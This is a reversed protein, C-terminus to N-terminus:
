LIEKLLTLLREERQIYTFGSLVRQRADAGTELTLAKRVAQEVEEVNRHMVIVGTHGIADPIGNVNSGVPICECLMAESLTNPMGETISAQVFVKAKNYNLFLLDDPVYSFILELNPLASIQYHEEIWPMFQKKIGILTFHLDPNRRAMSTFLDFGKNLFDTNSSMTGVTLIRKPEKAIAADRYYKQTDIGNPLITMPTKLGRIYHSMGDKKGEPTYYFNEHYIISKHNPLIHTANRLAYKVFVGRVKKYYVGKRLEPYCIAEQGGAFIIVKINLLKGLFAMVASHYDGFWTVMAAAGKANMLIFITLAVMRRLFYFGSGKQNILFPVVRYEKELIRQDSLVFSSDAHKIYLIKKRM